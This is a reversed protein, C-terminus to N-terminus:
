VSCNFILRVTNEGEELYVEDALERMLLLGRGHDALLNEESLADRDSLHLGGGEDTVVLEMTRKRVVLRMTAVKKAHWKNGHKMANTLVESGLLVVRYALDDDAQIEAMFAQLLNVGRELEAFTSSLRVELRRDSQEIREIM